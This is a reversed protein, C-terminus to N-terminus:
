LLLFLIFYFSFLLSFWHFLYNNKSFVLLISWKKGSSNLFFLLYLHGINPMFSPDELFASGRSVLLYYHCLMQYWYKLDTLCFTCIWQFGHVVLAWCSFSIHINRYRNFFYFEWCLGKWCLFRWTFITEKTFEVM